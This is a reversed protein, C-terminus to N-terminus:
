DKKKYNKKLKNSCIILFWFSQTINMDLTNKKLKIKKKKIM